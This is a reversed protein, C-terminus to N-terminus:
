IDAFPDHGYIVNALTLAGAALVGAAISALVLWSRGDPGLPSLAYIGVIMAGVAVLASIAALAYFPIAAVLRLTERGDSIEIDDAFGDNTKMWEPPQESMM